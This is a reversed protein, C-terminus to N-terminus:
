HKKRPPSTPVVPHLSSMRLQRLQSSLEDIQAQIHQKEGEGMRDSSRNVFDLSFQIITFLIAIGAIWALAQDRIQGMVKASATATINEQNLFTRPFRTISRDQAQAHYGAIDGVPRVKDAETAAHRFMSVRLFPMGVRLVYPVKSFNLLTTTVPGDWGPDVIGVTLAWIGLKTLTTKYTVHGTVDLPLEFIEASIVQVMEGPELTFIEPAPQGQHDFITGITLDFSSAQVKPNGASFFENPDLDPGAVLSM